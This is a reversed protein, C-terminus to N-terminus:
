LELLTMVSIFGMFFVPVMPISWIHWVHWAAMVFSCPCLSGTYSFSNFNSEDCTVAFGM